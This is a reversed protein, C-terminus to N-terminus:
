FAKKYMELIEEQTFTKPNNSLLAKSVQMANNALWELDSELVGLDRLKIDLDLSKKIKEVQAIFDHEDKGGMIKSLTAFREPCVDLTKELVVCIVAALGKGHIVNRLGSVPHEIGHVAICGASQLSFGGFTSALCVADWAENDNPNELLKPMNHVLLEVGKLSFMESVASANRSIYGEVNHCFADFMVSRLVSQPMTKMLDPDVISLKPLTIFQRLTRKDNTANDNLVAFCDAESGTGCTTPIAIVPLCTGNSTRKALIYDSVHGEHKAMFAIAKSADLSSGGGLGIVMECANDRAVKAAEMVADTTPNQPINDFVISAVGDKALLDQVKQLLGSKKTSNAGTVILAKSGFNKCEQGVLNIKGSGFFLNTPNNFIFNM